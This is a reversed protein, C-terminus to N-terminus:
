LEDRRSSRGISPEDILKSGRAARMAQGYHINLPPRFYGRWLETVVRYALGEGWCESASLASEAARRFAPRDAPDLPGSLRAILSETDLSM